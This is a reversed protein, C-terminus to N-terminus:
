DLVLDAGPRYELTSGVVVVVVVIVILRHRCLAFIKDIRRRDTPNEAHQFCYYCLRRIGISYTCQPIVRSIVKTTTVESNVRWGSKEDM